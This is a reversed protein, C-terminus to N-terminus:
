KASRGIARPYFIALGVGILGDVVGNALFILYPGTIFYLAFSFAASAIKANVLLMPFIRNEPHKYMLVALLTVLYMYAVALALFFGGQNSDVTIMGFQLAISNFFALLHNPILLFILGVLAFCVALIMSITKYLSM